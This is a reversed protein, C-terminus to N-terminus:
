RRKSCVGLGVDCLHGVTSRCMKVAAKGVDSAMVNWWRPSYRTATFSGSAVGGGGAGMIWVTYAVRRCTPHQVAM